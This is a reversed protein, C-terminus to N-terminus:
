GEPTDNDDSETLIDWAAQAAKTFRDGVGTVDNMMTQWNHEADHQFQNMSDEIQSPNIFHGQEVADRLQRVFTLYVERTMEGALQAEEVTRKRIADVLAATEDQLTPDFFSSTTDETETTKPSNPTPTITM